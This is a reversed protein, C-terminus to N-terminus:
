KPDPSDHRTNLSTYGYTLLILELGGLIPRLYKFMKIKEPIEQRTEENDQDKTKSKKPAEMRNVAVM